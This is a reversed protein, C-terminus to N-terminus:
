GCHVLLFKWSALLSLTAKVLSMYAFTRVCVEHLLQKYMRDAQRQATRLSHARMAKVWEKIKTYKEVNQPALTTALECDHVARDWAKNNMENIHLKLVRHSQQNAILTARLAYVEAKEASWSDLSKHTSTSKLSAVLPTASRSSNRSSSQHQHAANTDHAPVTPAKMARLLAGADAVANDFLELAKYASIRHKLANTDSPYSALLASTDAVVSEWQNKRGYAIARNLRAIYNCPDM